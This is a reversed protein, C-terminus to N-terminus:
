SSVSLLSSLLMSSSSPTLGNKQVFAFYSDIYYERSPQRSLTSVKHKEMLVIVAGPFYTQILAMDLFFLCARTPPQKRLIPGLNEKMNLIM